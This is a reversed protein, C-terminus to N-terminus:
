FSTPEDCFVTRAKERVELRRFHDLTEVIKKKKIPKIRLFIESEPKAISLAIM